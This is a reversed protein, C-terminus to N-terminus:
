GGKMCSSLRRRLSRPAPEELHKVQYLNKLIASMFLRNNFFGILLLGISFLSSYMGGVDGLLDM